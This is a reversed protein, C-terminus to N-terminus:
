DGDIIIVDFQLEPVCGPLFPELANGLGIVGVRVSNDDHVVDVIAFCEIFYLGQPEVFGFRVALVPYFDVYHAVFAVGRLGDFCRM